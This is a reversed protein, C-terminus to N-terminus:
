LVFTSSLDASCYFFSFSVVLFVVVQTTTHCGIMWVLTDVVVDEEYLVDQSRKM